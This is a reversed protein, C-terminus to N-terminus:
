SNTIIEKNLYYIKLFFYYIIKLFNEYFKNKFIYKKLINNKM